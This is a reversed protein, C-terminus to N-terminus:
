EEIRGRLVGMVAGYKGRLYGWPIRVAGGGPQKWGKARVKEVPFCNTSKLSIFPKGKETTPMHLESFILSRKSKYLCMEGHITVM